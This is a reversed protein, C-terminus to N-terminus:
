PRNKQVLSARLGHGLPLGADSEEDGAQDIQEARRDAEGRDLQELIRAAPDLHRAPLGAAALGGVVRAVAGRRPADRALHDGGELGEVVHHRRRARAGAHEPLVVRREQGVVRGPAGLGLREGRADVLEDGEDVVDEAHARDRRTVVTDDGVM